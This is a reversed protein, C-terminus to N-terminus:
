VDLDRSPVDAGRMGGEGHMHCYLHADASHVLVPSGQAEVLQDMLTKNGEETLGGPPKAFLLENIRVPLVITRVVSFNLLGGEVHVELVVLVALLVKISAEVEVDALEVSVNISSEVAVDIDEVVHEPVLEAIVEPRVEPRDNLLRGNVETSSLLLRVNPPERASGSGQDLTGRKVRGEVPVQLAITGRGQGLPGLAQGVVDVSHLVEVGANGDQDSTLDALTPFCSELCVNFGRFTSDDSYVLCSLVVGPQSVLLRSSWMWGELPWSTSEASRLGAVVKCWM